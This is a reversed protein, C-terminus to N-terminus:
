PRLEQSTRQELAKLREEVNRLRELIELREVVSYLQTQARHVPDRLSLVMGVGVGVGLLFLMLMFWVVFARDSIPPLAQM